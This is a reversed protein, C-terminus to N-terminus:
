RLVDIYFAPTILTFNIYFIFCNRVLAIKEMVHEKYWYGFWVAGVCVAALVVIKCLLVLGGM